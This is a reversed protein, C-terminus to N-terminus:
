RNSTSTPWTTATGEPVLWHPMGGAHCADAFVVVREAKIFRRLATDIDWMPFATSALKAPDTDHCLMFYNQTGPQPMGHGSFYIMVLDDRDAKALFEFMAHRVNEVTAQEDFLCLVNESKFGGIERSCLFNALAQGDKAAYKLNSFQEGGHAYDSVGVIVAWRGRIEPPPAHENPVCVYALETRALESQPSAATKSRLSLSVKAVGQQLSLPLVFQKVSDATTDQLDVLGGEAGNLSWRLEVPKTVGSVQGHIQSQRQRVIVAKPSDVSIRMGSRAIPVVGKASLEATLAQMLIDNEVSMQNATEELVKTFVYSVLPGLQDPRDAAIREASRQSAAYSAVRRGQPTEIDIALDCEAQRYADPGGLLNYILGTGVTLVAGRFSPRIYHKVALRPRLILYIEDTDAPPEDLVHQFIQSQQFFERTLGSFREKGMWSEIPYDQWPKFTDSERDHTYTVVEVDTPQVVATAPIKRFPALVQGQIYVGDSQCASLV